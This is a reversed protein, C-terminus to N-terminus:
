KNDGIAKQLIKKAENLYHVQGGDPSGAEQWLRTALEGAKERFIRDKKEQRKELEGIGPADRLAAMEFSPSVGHVEQYQAVLDSIFRGVNLFHCSMDYATACFLFRLLEPDKVERLCSDHKRIAEKQPQHAFQTYIFADLITKRTFTWSEHGPFPFRRPTSDLERLYLDCEEKVWKGMPHTIQSSLARCAAVFCGAEKLMYLRRFVTVFATIEEATAATKFLGLEITGPGNKIVETGELERADRLFFALSDVHEQTFSVKRLDLPAHPSALSFEIDHQRYHSPFVIAGEKGTCLEGMRKGSLHNGNEDEFYDVLFFISPFHNGAVARSIVGSREKDTLMEKFLHRYSLMEQAGDGADRISSAYEVAAQM